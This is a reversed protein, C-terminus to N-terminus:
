NRQLLVSVPAFREVDFNKLISDHLWDSGTRSNLYQKKTLHPMFPNIMKLGSVSAAGIIEDYSLYDRVQVRGGISPELFDVGTGLATIIPLYFDKSALRLLWTKTDHRDYPCLSNETDIFVFGGPAVLLFLNALATFQAARSIHELVQFCWVFDFAHRHEDAIASRLDSQFATSKLGHEAMRLKTFDVCQDVYDTSSAIGGRSAAAVSVSGTGCGVELVRKGSLNLYKEASAFFSQAWYVKTYLEIIVKQSRDQPNGTAYRAIKEEFADSYKWNRKATSLDQSRGPPGPLQVTPQVEMAAPEDISMTQVRTFTQLRFVCLMTCGISQQDVHAIPPKM